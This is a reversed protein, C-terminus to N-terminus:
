TKVGGREDHSETDGLVNEMRSIGDSVDVPDAKALAPFFGIELTELVVGGSPNKHLCRWLGPFRTERWESTGVSSLSVVVQGSGLVRDILRKDADTLPIDHINIVRTKGEQRLDRLALLAERLLPVANMIPNEDRSKEGAGDFRILFIPDGSDGGVPSNESAPDMM